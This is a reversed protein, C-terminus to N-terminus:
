VRILVGPLSDQFMFAWFFCFVVCTIDWYEPIEFAIQMILTFYPLDGTIAFGWFEILTSILFFFFILTSSGYHGCCLCSAEDCNSSELDLGYWSRSSVM